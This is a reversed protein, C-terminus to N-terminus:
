PLDSKKKLRILCCPNLGVHPRSGKFYARRSDSSVAPASNVKLSETGASKARRFYAVSPLAHMDLGTCQLSVACLRNFIEAVITSGLHFTRDYMFHSCPLSNLRPSLFLRLMNWKSPVRNDSSSEEYLCFV